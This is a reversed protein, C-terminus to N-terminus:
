TLLSRIYLSTNRILNKDYELSRMLEEEAKFHYKTYEVLENLLNLLVQHGSREALSEDLQNLIDVLKKHQRDILEVGTKYSDNWIFITM